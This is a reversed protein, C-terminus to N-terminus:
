PQVEFFEGTLDVGCGMCRVYHLNNRIYATLAEGQCYSCTLVLDGEASGFPYKHTGKPLRCSPCEINPHGVQAVGVWEFRCGLCVCPGAGWEDRDAEQGIMKSTPTHGREVPDVREAKAKKAAAFDVIESM